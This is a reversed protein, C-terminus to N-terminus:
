QAQIASSVDNLHGIETDSVNLQTQIASTVGSLYGIETNGNCYMVNCHYYCNDINNNTNGNCYM